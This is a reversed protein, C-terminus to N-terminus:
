VTTYHLEAPKTATNFSEWPNSGRLIFLLAQFGGLLAQFGGLLAQFGMIM